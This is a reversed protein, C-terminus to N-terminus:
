PQFAVCEIVGSQLAPLIEAMPMQTPIAGTLALQTALENQNEAVQIKRGKIDFDAKVPTKCYFATLNCGRCLETTYFYPAAQIIMAADMRINWPQLLTSEGILTNQAINEGSAALAAVSNTSSIRFYELRSQIGPALYFGSAGLTGVLGLISLARWREAFISAGTSSDENKIFNVLDAVSEDFRPGITVDYRHHRVLGSIDDPLEKTTPFEPM